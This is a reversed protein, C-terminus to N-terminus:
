MMSQLFLLPRSTLSKRRERPALRSPPAQTMRWTPAASPLRLPATCQLQQPRHLQKKHRKSAFGTCAFAPDKSALVIVRM